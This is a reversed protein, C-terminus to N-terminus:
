KKNPNMDNLTLKLVKQTLKHETKYSKTKIKNSITESKSSPKMGYSKTETKNSKTEM